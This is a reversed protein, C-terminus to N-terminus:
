GMEFNTSSTVLNLIAKLKAMYRSRASRGPIAEDCVKGSVQKKIKEQKQRQSGPGIWRTTIRSRIYGVSVEVSDFPLSPNDFEVM